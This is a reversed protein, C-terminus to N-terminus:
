RRRRRRALCLGAVSGLMLLSTPEPTAVLNLGLGGWAGVGVGGPLPSGGTYTFTFSLETANDLPIPAGLVPNFPTLTGVTSTGDFIDLSWNGVFSGLPLFELQNGSVSQLDNFIGAWDYRVTFVDGPSSAVLDYRENLDNASMGGATSTAEVTIGNSGIATAGGANPADLVNFADIIFDAQSTGCLLVATFLALCIKRIVTSSRLTVYTLYILELAFYRLERPVLIVPCVPRGGISFCPFILLKPFNKM